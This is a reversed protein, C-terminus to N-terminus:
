WMDESYLNPEGPNGSKTVIQGAREAIYFGEVRNVFRGASTLFGQNQPPVNLASGRLVLSLSHLITHHRAPPPLSITAGHFIAAAVITENPTSTM